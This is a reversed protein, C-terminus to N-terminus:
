NIQSLKMGAGAPHLKEEAKSKILTSGVHEKQGGTECGAPCTNGPIGGKQDTFPPLSTNSSDNNIISKLRAIDVKQIIVSFFKKFNKKQAMYLSFQKNRNHLVMIGRGLSYTGYAMVFVNPGKGGELFVPLM